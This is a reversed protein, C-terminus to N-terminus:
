RCRYLTTRGDLVPECELGLPREATRRISMTDYRRSLSEESMYLESYGSPRYHDILFIVDHGLIEARTQDDITEINITQEYWRGQELPFEPKERNYYVYDMQIAWFALVVPDQEADVIRGIERMHTAYDANAPRFLTHETIAFTVVQYLLALYAIWVLSHDRLVQWGVMFWCVFFLDLPSIFVNEEGPIKSIVYINPLAVALTLLVLKRERRVAFLAPILLAHLVSFNKFQFKAFNKV